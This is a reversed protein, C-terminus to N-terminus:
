EEEFTWDGWRTLDDTDVYDRPSEALIDRADEESDAEIYASVFRSVTVTGSVYYERKRPRLGIDRMCRDFEGCLDNEDAYSHAVETANEKWAEFEARLEAERARVAARVREETDEEPLAIGRAGLFASLAELVDGSLRSLDYDTYGDWAGEILRMGEDTTPALYTANMGIDVGFVRGNTLPTVVYFWVSRSREEDMPVSAVVIRGSKVATLNSAENATATM